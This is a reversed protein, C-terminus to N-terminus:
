GTRPVQRLCGASAQEPLGAQGGCMERKKNGERRQIEKRKRKREKRTLTNFVTFHTLLTSLAATQESKGAAQRILKSLDALDANAQRVADAETQHLKGSDANTQM